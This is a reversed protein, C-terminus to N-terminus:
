DAKRNRKIKENCFVKLKKLVIAVLVMSGLADAGSVVFSTATSTSVNFPLSWPGDAFAFSSVIRLDPALLTLSSLDVSDFIKVIRLVNTEFKGLRLHFKGGM